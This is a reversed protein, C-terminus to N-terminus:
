MKRIVLSRAVRGRAATAAIGSIRRSRSRAADDRRLHTDHEAQVAVAAHERARTERVRAGAAGSPLSANVLNM